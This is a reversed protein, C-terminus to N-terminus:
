CLIGGDGELYRGCVHQRLMFYQSKTGVMVEQAGEVCMSVLCLIGGDGQMCRGCVKRACASEAYFAVIVKQVGGVCRGRMKRACASKAYFAM